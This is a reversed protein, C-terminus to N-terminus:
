SKAKGRRPNKARDQANLYWRTSTKKQEPTLFVQLDSILTTLEQVLRSQEEFDTFLILEGNESRRLPVDEPWHYRPITNSM